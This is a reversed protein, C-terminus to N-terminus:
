TRPLPPTLYFVIAKPRGDGPKVTVPKGDAGLATFEPALQGVLTPVSFATDSERLEGGSLNGVIALVAIVVTGIVFALGIVLATKPKQKVKRGREHKRSIKNM